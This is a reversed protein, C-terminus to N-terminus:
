KYKMLIEAFNIDEKTDIDVFYKTVSNIAKMKSPPFKKEKMLYNIKIADVYCDPIYTQPLDQRRVAAKKFINKNILPKLYNNKDLKRILYPAFSSKRVSRVCNINKKFMIEKLGVDIDKYSRLPMTPRLFVLIDNSKKNLNLKLKKVAHLIVQYDLVRDGSFKKPRMFPVEAGYKIAVRKIKEDDTSVIIRTIFKSKKAAAITYYILPKGNLLTINKKKIGKSGGRAPILAVVQTKNPLM